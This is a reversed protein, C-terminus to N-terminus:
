EVSMIKMMLNSVAQIARLLVLRAPSFVLIGLSQITDLIVQDVEWPSRAMWSEAAISSRM